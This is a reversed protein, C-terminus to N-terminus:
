RVPPSSLAASLVKGVVALSIMWVLVFLLRHRLLMADEGQMAAIGGGNSDFLIVLITSIAYPAVGLVFGAGALPRGDPFRQVFTPPFWWAPLREAIAPSDDALDTM